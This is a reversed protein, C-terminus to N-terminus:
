CLIYPVSVAGFLDAELLIIGRIGLNICFPHCLAFVHMALM